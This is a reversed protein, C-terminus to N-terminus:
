IMLAKQKPDLPFLGFLGCIERNLQFKSNSAPSETQNEVQRLLLYLQQLGEM